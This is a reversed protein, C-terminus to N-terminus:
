RVDQRAELGPGLRCRGMGGGLLECSVEAHRSVDFRPKRYLREARDNPVEPSGGRRRLFTPSEVCCEGSRMWEEVLDEDRNNCANDIEGTVCLM